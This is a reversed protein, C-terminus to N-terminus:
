RGLEAAAPASHATGAMQRWTVVALLSVLVMAVGPVGFLYFDPM